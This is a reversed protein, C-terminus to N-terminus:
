TLEDGDVEALSPAPEGRAMVRTTSNTIWDRLARKVRQPAFLRLRVAPKM